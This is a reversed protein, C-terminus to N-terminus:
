EEGRIRVKNEEVIWLHQKLPEKELFTRHPSHCRAPVTKVQKIITCEANNELYIGPAPPGALADPVHGPSRRRLGWLTKGGM